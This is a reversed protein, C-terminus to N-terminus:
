PQDYAIEDQTTQSGQGPLDPAAVSALQSTNQRMTEAISVVMRTTAQHEMAIQDIQHVIEIIKQLREIQLDMSAVMEDATTKSSSAKTDIQAIIKDAAKAQNLGADVSQMGTESVNVAESVAQQIMKLAVRVDDTARRSQDALDRVEDAVVTFGQGREGARAAEIQANLALFNSQTAIDSVSAIIDGIRRLHLALQGITQGVKEVAAQTQGIQKLVMEITQRGLMVVRMTEQATEVLSASQQRVQEARERFSRLSNGIDSLWTEQLETHQLQQEAANFVTNASTHLERWDSPAPISVGVPATAQTNAPDPQTDSPGIPESDAQFARSTLLFVGALGLYLGLPGLAEETLSTRDNLVLSLPVWLAGGLTLWVVLVPDRFLLFMHALLLAGFPAIVLWEESSVSLLAVSYVWLQGVATAAPAQDGYTSHNLILPGISLLVLAIVAALLSIDSVLLVLCLWIILGILAVSDIIDVTFTRSGLMVRSHRPQGTRDYQNM